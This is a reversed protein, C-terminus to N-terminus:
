EADDQDEDDGSDEFVSDEDEEGADDADDDGSDEVGLQVDDDDNADSSDDDDDFDDWTPRLEFANDVTSGYGISLQFRRPFEKEPPIPCSKSALIKALKERTEPTDGFERLATIYQQRLTQHAAYNYDHYRQILTRVVSAYGARSVLQLTRLPWDRPPVDFYYEVRRGLKAPKGKPDTGMVSVKILNSAKRAM